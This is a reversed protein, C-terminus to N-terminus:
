PVAPATEEIRNLENQCQKLFDEVSAYSSDNRRLLVMGSRIMRHLEGYKLAAENHHLNNADLELQKAVQVIITTSLGTMGLVIQAVNILLTTPDLVGLVVNLLGSSAWLVLATVMSAEAMKKFYASADHHLKKNRRALVMWTNLVSETTEAM